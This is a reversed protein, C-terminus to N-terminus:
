LRVLGVQLFKTIRSDVGYNRLLCHVFHLMVETTIPEDRHLGAVYVVAPYGTMSTDRKQLGLEIVSLNRGNVSTGISCCTSKRIVNCAIIM